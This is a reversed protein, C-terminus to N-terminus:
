QTQTCHTHKTKTTASKTERSFVLGNEYKAEQKKKGRRSQILDM